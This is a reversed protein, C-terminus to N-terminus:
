KRSHALFFVSCLDHSGAHLNGVHTQLDGGADADVNINMMTVLARTMTVLSSEQCSKSFVGKGESFTQLSVSPLILAGQFLQHYTTTFHCLSLCINRSFPALKREPLEFM